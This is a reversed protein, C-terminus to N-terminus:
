HFEVRLQDLEKQLKESREESEKAKIELELNRAQEEQLDKEAMQLLGDYENEIEHTEELVRSTGKSKGM